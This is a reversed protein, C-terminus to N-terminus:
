GLVINLGYPASPGDTTGPAGGPIATHIVDCLGFTPLWTRLTLSWGSSVNGVDGGKDDAVFLRWTGNPSAGALDVLRHQHPRFLAPPPLIDLGEQDDNSPKFTGSGANAFTPLPNPADDDFTYNVGNVGPGSGGVDSMLLVDGGAPSQLLVDLD